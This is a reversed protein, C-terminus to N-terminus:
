KKVCAVQLHYYKGVCFGTNWLWAITKVKCSSYVALKELKKPRPYNRVQTKKQAIRQLNNTRSMEGTATPQCGQRSGASSALCSPESAVVSSNTLVGPEPAPAQSVALSSISSSNSSLCTSSSSSTPASNTTDGNTSAM